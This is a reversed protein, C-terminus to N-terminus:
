EAPLISTPRYRDPNVAALDRRIAVAEQEPPLAGAPPWPPPGPVILTVDPAARFRM